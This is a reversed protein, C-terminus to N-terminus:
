PARHIATSIDASPLGPSYATFCSSYEGSKTVLLHRVDSLFSKLSRNRRRLESGAYRGRRPQASLPRPRADTLTGWGAQPDDAPRRVHGQEAAWQSPPTPGAM